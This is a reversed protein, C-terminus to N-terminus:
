TRCQCVGFYGAGRGCRGSGHAAPHRAALKTFRHQGAIGFGTELGRGEGGGVRARRHGGCCQPRQIRQQHPGFRPGCDLAVRKLRGMEAVFEKQSIDGAIYASRLGYIENKLGKVRQGLEDTKKGGTETSAKYADLGRKAENMGQSISLLNQTTLGSQTKVKELSGSLSELGKRYDAPSVAGREFESTLLSMRDRIRGIRDELGSTGQAATKAEVGLRRMGDALQAESIVGAKAKRDLLELESLIPKFGLGEQKPNLSKSLSEGATKIRRELASLDAERVGLEYYISGAAVGQSM